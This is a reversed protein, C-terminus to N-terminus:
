STTPCARTRASWCPSGCAACWTDGDRILFFALYLTIFLSAVFSFTDQGISLAHTAFFQSGRALAAVLRRYLPVFLLAIISRWLIAGYFLLM